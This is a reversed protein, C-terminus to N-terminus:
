DFFGTVPEFHLFGRIKLGTYCGKGLFGAASMVSLVWGVIATLIIIAALIIMGIPNSTLVELISGILSTIYNVLQSILGIVTTYAAAMISEPAILSLQEFTNRVNNFLSNDDGVQNIMEALIDYVCICAGPSCIIGFFDYGDIEGGLTVSTDLGQYSRRPMIFPELEKDDDEIGPEPIYTRVSGDISPEDLQSLLSLDDLFDDSWTDINSYFADLDVEEKLYVSDINDVEYYTPSLTIARNVILIDSAGLLQKDKAFEFLKQVVLSESQEFTLSYDSFDLSESFEEIIQNSTESISNILNYRPDGPLGSNVCTTFTLILPLFTM